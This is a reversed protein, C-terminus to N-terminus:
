GGGGHGGHGGHGGPGGPGPPNGGHPSGPHAAPRVEADGWQRILDEALEFPSGYVKFMSDHSNYGLETREITIEKGDIHLRTAFAREDPAWHEGRRHVEIARGRYTGQEVSAHRAPAPPSSRPTRKRAM